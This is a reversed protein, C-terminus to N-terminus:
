PIYPFGQQLFRLDANDTDPATFAVVNYDAYEGNIFDVTRDKQWKRVSAHGDAWGFDCKDVHWAALRDGFYDSMSPCERVHVGWSGMNWGRWDAEEVFVYKTEPYKIASLKRIKKNACCGPWGEGNLTGVISYSGWGYLIAGNSAVRERDSPCHYADMNKVYSWLKGREIAEEQEPISPGINTTPRLVWHYPNDKTEPTGVTPWTHGGVIKGKNDEAYWLWNSSLVKLNGLCVALTANERAARLAPLLVSVLVAIIAVVILLEILTFGKRRSM